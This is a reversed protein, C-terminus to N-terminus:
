VPVIIITRHRYTKLNLTKKAWHIREGTTNDVGSIREAMAEIRNTFNVEMRGACIGPNAMELIGETETKQIPEIELVKNFDVTIKRLVAM